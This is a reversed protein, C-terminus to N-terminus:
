IEFRYTIIEPFYERCLALENERDDIFIVVDYSLIDINNEIYIAKSKNFSYHYIFQDTNSIGIQQLETKTKKDFEKSRATLFDLKSGDTKAYIKQIMLNFGDIDTHMPISQNRYDIYSQWAIKYLIHEPYEKDKLLKKTLTFFDDFTKEFRLVTDDIDCLVLVKKDNPIEVNYFTNIIKSM